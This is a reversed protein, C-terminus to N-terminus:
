QIFIGPTMARTRKTKLLVFLQEVGFIQTDVISYWAMDREM